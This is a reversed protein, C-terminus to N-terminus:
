IEINEETVNGDKVALRTISDGGEWVQTAILEGTSKSLMDKLADWCHGSGESSYEIDSVHLMGDKLQGGMGFGEATGGVSVNEGDVDIDVYPLAKVADMPIVLNELKKTRWTDINYSM